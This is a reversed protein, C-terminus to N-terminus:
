YQRCENEDVSFEPTQKMQLIAMAVSAALRLHGLLMMLDSMDLTERPKEKSWHRNEPLITTKGYFHLHTGM